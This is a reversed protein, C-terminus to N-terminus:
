CFELDYNGEAAAKMEAVLIRGNDRDYSDELQEVLEALRPYVQACEEPTLEGDCDSHNLLPKIPTDVTDWSLQKCDPNHWGGFGAMDMLNFGEMEALTQRFRSFGGYAWHAGGIDVGM